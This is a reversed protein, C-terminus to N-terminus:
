SIRRGSSESTVRAIAPVSLPEKGNQDGSLRDTQKKTWSFSFFTSIL